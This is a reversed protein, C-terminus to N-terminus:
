VFTCRFINEYIDIKADYWVGLDMPFLVSGIENYFKCKIVKDFYIHNNEFRYRYRNYLDQYRFAFQFERFYTDRRISFKWSYNDWHYKEFDLFLYLWEYNNSTKGNFVITGDRLFSVEKTPEQYNDVVKPQFGANVLPQYEFFRKIRIWNEDHFIWQAFGLSRDTEFLLDSSVYKTHSQFDKKFLRFFRYAARQFHFRINKKFSKLIDYILPCRNRLARKIM